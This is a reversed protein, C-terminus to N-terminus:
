SMMTSTNESKILLTKGNPTRSLTAVHHVYIKPVIVWQKALAKEFIEVVRDDTISANQLDCLFIHLGEDKHVIQWARASIDDMIQYFFHPHITVQGAEGSPFHLNDETRGQITDVLVFPRGCACSQKLLRVSDDLEYRILPQTHNFLVTVLLKAGYEGLPVPRHHEDVNEVILLDEAIHMGNHHNCEVALIGTETTTYQNFIEKGWVQKIFRRTMEPLVEATTMITSPSIHLRKAHQELALAYAMSSYTFLAEPQWDNLQRVITDIPDTVLLRLTSVWPNKLTHAVQYSLHRPEVSAVMAVKRYSIDGAEIGAWDYARGFSTQLVEWEQKKFVHISPCGTSGLSAIVRYQELFLADMTDVRRKRINSLQINRDTVVDDFHEMLLQKTLVPLEHLPKDYLGQHFRQYFPSNRYAHERLQMLTQQQHTELQQRTWDDHERFQDLTSSLGWIMPINM